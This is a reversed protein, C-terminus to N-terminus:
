ILRSRPWCSSGPGCGPPRHRHRVPRGRLPHRPPLDPRLRRRLRPHRRRLVTEGPAPRRRLHVDGADREGPRQSPEVGGPRQPPPLRHLAPRRDRGAPDRVRQRLGGRARRAPDLLGPEGGPARLVGLIKQNLGKLTIGASLPVFAVPLRQSGTATKPGLRRYTRRHFDRAYRTAITTKGLGPAADIVVSGRLRDADRRNSAMVQDIVDFAATLQQTKVTPLNANWVM